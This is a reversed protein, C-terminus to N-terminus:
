AYVVHTCMDDRQSRHDFQAAYVRAIFTGSARVYSTGNRHYEEAEQWGLCRMHHKNSGNEARERVEVVVLLSL